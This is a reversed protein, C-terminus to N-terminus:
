GKRIRLGILNRDQAGGHRFQHETMQHTLWKKSRKMAENEGAADCWDRWAKYLEDKGISFDVNIECEEELFQKVLDQENRYEATAEKVANPLPFRNIQWLICGNVAWTLIGTMESQFLQLIESM